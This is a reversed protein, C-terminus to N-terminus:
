PTLSPFPATAAKEGSNAFERVILPPEVAVAVVAERSKGAAAPPAATLDEGSRTASQIWVYAGSAGIVFLSLAAKKIM